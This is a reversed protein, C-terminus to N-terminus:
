NEGEEPIRILHDRAIKHQLLLQFDVLLVLAGNCHLIGWLGRRVVYPELVAPFLQIDNLSYEAVDEMADIIVRYSQQDGTRISVVTPSAYRVAAAGYELEEHFWFLDDAQKGAYAGIEAVQDTDVAFHVGSVSFLLLNLRADDQESM